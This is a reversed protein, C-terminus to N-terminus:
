HILESKMCYTITYINLNLMSKMGENINSAIELVELDQIVVPKGNFLQCTKLYSDFTEANTLELKIRNNTCIRSMSVNFPSMYQNIDFETVNNWNIFNGKLFQRHFFCLNSLTYTERQHM